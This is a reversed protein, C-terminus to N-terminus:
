GGIHLVPEQIIFFAIRIVFGIIGTIGLGATTVKIVLWVENMSPRTAIRLIQRAQIFFRKVAVAM